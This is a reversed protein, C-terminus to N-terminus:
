DHIVSPRRFWCVPNGHLWFTSGETFQEIMMGSISPILTLTRWLSVNSLAAPVGNVGFQFTHVLHWFNTRYSYFNRKEGELPSPFVSIVETKLSTDHLRKSSLVTRIKKERKEFSIESRTTRSILIVSMTAPSSLLRTRWLWCPSGQANSCNTSCFWFIIWESQKRIVPESSSASSRACSVNM